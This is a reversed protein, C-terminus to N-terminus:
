PEPEPESRTTESQWCSRWWWSLRESFYMKSKLEEVVNEFDEARIRCDRSERYSLARIAVINAYRIAPVLATTRTNTDLRCLKFCMEELESNNFNSENLIVRYNVPSEGREGSHLVFDHIHPETVGKMIDVERKAVYSCNEELVGDRFYIVRSPARLKTEFKKLLGDKDMSAVVSGISAQGQYQPPHMITGAVFMAGETQVFNIGEGIRNIKLALIWYDSLSPLQAGLWGYDVFCFVVKISPNFFKTLKSC